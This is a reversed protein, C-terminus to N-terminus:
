HSSSANWIVLSFTGFVKTGEWNAQQEITIDKESRKRFQICLCV